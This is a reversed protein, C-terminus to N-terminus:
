IESNCELATERENQCQLCCQGQRTSVPKVTSPALTAQGTTLPRQVTSPKSMRVGEAGEVRQEDVRPLSLICPVRAKM